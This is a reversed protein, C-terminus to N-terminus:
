NQLNPTLDWTRGKERERERKKKQRKAKELAAGMAYPPERALSRIPATAALRHWLWLM